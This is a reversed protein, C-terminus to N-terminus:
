RGGDDLGTDKSVERERVQDFNCAVAVALTSPGCFRASPVGSVYLVLDADPVGASIHTTPVRSFETDGCYLREQLDASSILLNGQVPVVSLAATWYDRMRPLISNKVFDIQPGNTSTRQADLAETELHIRIPRFPDAGEAEEEEQLDRADFEWEGGEGDRGFDGGGPHRRRERRGERELRMRDFPHNEYVLRHNPDGRIGTRFYPLENEL